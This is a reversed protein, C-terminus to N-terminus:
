LLPRLEVKRNCAKSGGHALARATAEDNAEIIWFGSFQEKAAFLPTETILSAGQRNDIVVANTPDALGCAFIWHGNARLTDNFADVATMEAETGSNSLDDIVSILFRMILVKRTSRNQKSM